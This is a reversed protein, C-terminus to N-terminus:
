IFYGVVVVGFKVFLLLLWLTSLFFNCDGLLFAAGSSSPKRKSVQLLSAIRCKKWSLPTLALLYVRSKSLFGKEKNCFQNCHFYVSTPPSSTCLPPCHLNVCVCICLYMTSIAGTTGSGARESKYIKYFFTYVTANCSCIHTQIRNYIHTHTNTFSLIKRTFLVRKQASITRELEVGNTSSQAAELLYM